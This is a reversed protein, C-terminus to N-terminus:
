QCFAFWGWCPIKRIVLFNLSRRVKHSNLFINATVVNFVFFLAFSCLETISLHKTRPFDRQYMCNSTISSVGENRVSLRGLLTSFYFILQYSSKILTLPLRNNVIPTKFSVVISFLYQSLLM